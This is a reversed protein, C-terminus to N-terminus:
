QGNVATAVVPILIAFTCCTVLVVIIITPIFMTGIAEWTGIDEAARIANVNLVIMYFGFALGVLAPLFILLPTRYFLLSFLGVVGGVLTGPASVASLCFVLDNWNGHGKFIRAFLHYITASIAIGIIAFLPSLIIGCIYFFAYGGYNRFLDGGFANAMLNRTVLASFLYSVLTVIFSTVGVWIFGRTVDHGPENLITSFPALGPHIWVDWWIEYWKRPKAPQIIETTMKHVSRKQPIRIIGKDAPWKVSVALAM